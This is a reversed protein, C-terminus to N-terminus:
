AASAAPARTQPAGPPEQPPRLIFCPSLVGTDVVSHIELTWQDELHFFQSESLLVSGATM